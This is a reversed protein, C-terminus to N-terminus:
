GGGRGNKVCLQWSTDRGPRARTRELACWLSGSRTVYDGAEYLDGDLHVGRYAIGKNQELESV